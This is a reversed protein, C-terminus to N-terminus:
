TRLCVPSSNWGSVRGDGIGVSVGPREATEFDGYCEPHDRSSPPCEGRPTHVEVEGALLVRLFDETTKNGDNTSSTIVFEHLVFWGVLVGTSRIPWALRPCPRVYGFRRLGAPSAVYVHDSREGEPGPRRYRSELQRQRHERSM